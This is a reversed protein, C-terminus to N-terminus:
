PKPPSRICWFLPLVLSSKVMRAPAFLRRPKRLDIRVRLSTKLQTGSGELDKILRTVSPQSLALTRSAETVSGTRLTARFADLQRLNM